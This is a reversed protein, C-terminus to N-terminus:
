GDSLAEEREVRGLDFAHNALYLKGHRCRFLCVPKGSVVDTFRYEVYNMPYSTILGLIARGDLWVARAVEIGLVIAGVVVAALALFALDSV